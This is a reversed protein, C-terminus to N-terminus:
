QKAAPGGFETAAAQFADLAIGISCTRRLARQMASVFRAGDDVFCIADTKM